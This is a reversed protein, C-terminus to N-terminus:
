IHITKSHKHMGRPIHKSKLQQVVVSKKIRREIWHNKKECVDTDELNKRMCMKDSQLGAAKFRLSSCYSKNMAYNKFGARDLARTGHKSRTM